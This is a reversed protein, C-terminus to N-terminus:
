AVRKRKPTKKEKAAGRRPGSRSNRSELSARLRAM